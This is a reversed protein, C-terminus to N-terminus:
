RRAIETRIDKLAGPPVAAGQVSCVVCSVRNAFMLADEWAFGAARVAAVAGVHADGAGVTDVPVIPETGVHVIEDELFAYSGNAGDTIVVDNGVQARLAEGAAELSPAGTFALAEQKNLHWVPRLANLRAIKEKDIGMIRPGPAFYTLLRPNDELFEIIADGEAPEIEYGSVVACAFQRADIGDFWSREYHRDVGPLTLMTREGDPEIMCMCVGNDYPSSVNLGALGRTQLQDRLWAAHMGSGLPACLMVPMGLEQVACATNHACGGVAMSVSEAVIGEGSGPLRPVHCVMDVILAGIALVGKSEQMACGGKTGHLVNICGLILFHGVILFLGSPSFM